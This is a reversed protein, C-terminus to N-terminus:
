LQQCEALNSCFKNLMISDERHNGQLIKDVKGKDQLVFLSCALFFGGGIVAIFATMYLAYQLAYFQTYTTDHNGISFAITDSM